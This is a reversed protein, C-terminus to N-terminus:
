NLEPWKVQITGHGNPEDNVGIVYKSTIPHANKVGTPVMKHKIDNMELFKNVQGNAYATNVLIM